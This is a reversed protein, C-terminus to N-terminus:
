PVLFELDYFKKVLLENLKANKLNQKIKISADGVGYLSKVNKLLQQFEPSISKNIASIISKVNEDCDIISAAKLRGQQRIGVNVTPKKLYPAEVIGSSSNGIVVSCHKMVSLYKLQGLSTSVFVRDPQKLVYNDIAKSIIRGGADANPKTIIIKAKPFEDLAQLLNGIAEGPSEKGLTVAHYTVLFSVEGLTFNIDKELQKQSMLKRRNINDLGVDGYNFVRDPREGLQILRKRYPEAAVFHLHAMKSIAHRIADDIAGETVEGGSIHAIPIRAVMAAQVAAMIEYRDGLFVIIDPKLRELADAFSIIALGMSKTIGVPSDSSLLMEVKADIKFGDEEIFKYTNGFEPSLHMGTAIIQLQLNQDDKIEKMLWYLLGYESRSGTVVCIKRNSM